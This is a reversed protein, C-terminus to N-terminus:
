RDHRAIRPVLPRREARLRHRLRARRRLEWTGHDRLLLAWADFAGPVRRPLLGTGPILDLGLEGKFKAM